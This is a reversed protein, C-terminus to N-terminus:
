WVLTTANVRCKYVGLDYSLIKMKITYTATVRLVYEGGSVWKSESYSIGSLGGEIGLNKLYTDPDNTIYSLNKKLRGKAVGGIVATGVIDEASSKLLNVIGAVIDTNEVYDEINDVAISGLSIANGDGNGAAKVFDGMSDLVKSTDAKFKASEAGTEAIKGTVGIKSLIYSYESIERATQNVSYQILAQAKIINILGILTLFTCFFPILILIVEVTLSGKEGEYRKM